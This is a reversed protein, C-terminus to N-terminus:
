YLSEFFQPYYKYYNCYRDIDDGTLGTKKADTNAMGGILVCSDIHTKEKFTLFPCDINVIREDHSIYPLSALCEMLSAMMDEKHFIGGFTYMKKTDKYTINFLQLFSVGEQNSLGKTIAASMIGRLVRPFTKERFDKKGVGDPIYLGLEEKFGDPKPPHEGEVTLAFIDGEKAKSAVYVADDVIDMSLFDDYDLWIFLSEDWDLKSEMFSMADSIEFTIFGYPINFRFREEDEKERDVSTMNEINLYKHFLIFDAFYVSGFGFYRYKSLDGIVQGLHQLAEIMMKREIQKKLRLLYNVKEYSRSM